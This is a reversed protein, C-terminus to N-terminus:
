HRTARKNSSAPRLAKAFEPDAEALAQTQELIAADIEAETLNAFEGPRGIETQHIDRQGLYQKGLFIAMTANRQALAFQTRRLSARGEGKGGEHADKAEPNTTFFNQLTRESVGLVRASEEVTAQIAGLQRLTNLTKEDPVLKPKPGPKQRDSV